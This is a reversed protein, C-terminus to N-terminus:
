LMKGMNIPGSIFTSPVLFAWRSGWCASVCGSSQRHPYCSDHFPGQHGADAQPDGTDALTSRADALTGRTDALLGGIDALSTEQTPRHALPGRVDALPGGIDALSM